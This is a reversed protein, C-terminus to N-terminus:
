GGFFSRFIQRILCINQKNKPPYSILNIQKQYKRIKILLGLKKKGIFIFESTYDSSNKGILPCPPDVKDVM